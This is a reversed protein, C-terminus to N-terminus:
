AAGGSFDRFLRTSLRGTTTGLWAHFQARARSVRAAHRQNPTLTQHESVPEILEPGRYDADWRCKLTSYNIGTERALVDLGVPKDTIPHPIVLPKPM